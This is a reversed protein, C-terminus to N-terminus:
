DAGQLDARDGDPKTHNEILERETLFLKRDALDPRFKAVSSKLRAIRQSLDMLVGPRGKAYAVVKELSRGGSASRIAAREAEAQEDTDALHELAEFRVFTFYASGDEVHCGFGASYFGLGKFQGAILAPSVGADLLDMYFLFDALQWSAYQARTGRGTNVGPPLGLKQLQQLRATFTKRKEDAVGFVDALIADVHKFSFTPEMM